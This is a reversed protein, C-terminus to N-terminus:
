GRIRAPSISSFSQCPSSVLTKISGDMGIQSLATQVQDFWTQYKRDSSPHELFIYGSALDMFVLIIGAVGGFFTEDAGAIIEKNTPSQKIQQHQQEQYKVIAERMQAELRRLTTPSVGVQTNLRLLHFFESLM